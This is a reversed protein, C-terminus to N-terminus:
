AGSTSRTKRSTNQLPKRGPTSASPMGRLCRCMLSISSPNPRLLSPPLCSTPRLDRVGLAQLISGKWGFVALGSANFQYLEDAVFCTMRWPRTGEPCVDSTTVTVPINSESSCYRLESLGGSGFEEAAYPSARAGDLLSVNHLVYDFGSEIAENSMTYGGYLFGIIQSHRPARARSAEM